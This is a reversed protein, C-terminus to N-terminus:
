HPTRSLYVETLQAFTEIRQNELGLFQEAFLKYVQSPKIDHRRMYQLSISGATKSLKHGQEDKELKHHLFKAEPFSSINLKEALYLQAATSSLLDEGRVIYNIRFHVDDALSTVQYSPLGNRKRVIFSGSYEGLRYEVAGMQEDPFKVIHNSPVQIRWSTDPTHLPLNLHECTGPYAYGELSALKKRSCECAFISKAERLQCILNDYIDIRKHQSWNEEFDTPGSPGEQWQIGLWDLSIFIDDVYEPRKREDDIDDVRLLIIGGLKKMQLATLLFSFANGIHLYGSPTPAIRTRFM